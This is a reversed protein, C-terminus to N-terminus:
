KRRRIPPKSVTDYMVKLAMVTECPWPNKCATCHSFSDPVHCGSEEVLRKLAKLFAKHAKVGWTERVSELGDRSIWASCAKRWVQVDVPTM